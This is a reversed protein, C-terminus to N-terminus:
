WTWPLRSARLLKTYCVNYSTIRLRLAGSCLLQQPFVGDLVVANMGGRLEPLFGACTKMFAARAQHLPSGVPLIVRDGVAQEDLCFDMGGEIGAVVVVHDHGGDPADDDLTIVEYLM